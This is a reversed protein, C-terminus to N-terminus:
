LPRFEAAPALTRIPCNWGSPMFVQMENCFRRVTVRLTYSDGQSPQTLLYDGPPVDDSPNLPRRITISNNKM